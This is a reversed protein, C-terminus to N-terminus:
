NEEEDREYVKMRQQRRIEEEEVSCTTNESCPSSEQGATKKGSEYGAKEQKKKTCAEMGAPLRQRQLGRKQQGLGQVQGSGKGGNMKEVLKKWCQDMEEQNLGRWTRM